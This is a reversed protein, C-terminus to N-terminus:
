GHGKKKPMNQKEPSSLRPKAFSSRKEEHDTLHFQVGKVSPNVKLSGRKSNYSSSALLNQSYNKIADIHRDKDPDTVQCLPIYLDIKPAQDNSYCWEKDKALLLNPKTSNMFISEYLSDAPPSNDMATQAFGKPKSVATRNTHSPSEGSKASSEGDTKSFRSPRISEHGEVQLRFSSRRSIKKTILEFHNTQKILERKNPFEKIYSELDGYFTRNSFNNENALSNLKTDTKPRTKSIKQKKALSEVNYRCIKM